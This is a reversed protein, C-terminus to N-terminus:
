ALGDFRGIPFATQRHITGGLKDWPLQGSIIVRQTYRLWNERPYGRWGKEKQVLKRGMVTDNRTACRYDTTLAPEHALAEAEPVEACPGRPWPHWRQDVTMKKLKQVGSCMAGQCGGASVISSPKRKGSEQWFFAWVACFLGFRSNYKGHHYSSSSCHFFAPFIPFFISVLDSQLPSSHLNNFFTSRIEWPFVHTKEKSIKGFSEAEFRGLVFGFGAVGNSANSLTPLINNTVFQNKKPWTQEFSLNENEWLM